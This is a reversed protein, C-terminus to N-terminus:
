ATPDDGAIIAFGKGEDNSFLYYAPQTATKANQGKCHAQPTNLAQPAKIYQKALQCAAEIDIPNAQSLCVQTAILMLGLLLRKNMHSNNESKNTAFSRLVDRMTM